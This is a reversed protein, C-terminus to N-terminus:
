AAEDANAHIPLQQASARQRKTVVLAHTHTRRFTRNGHLESQIESNVARQGSLAPATRRGWAQDYVCHRCLLFARWSSCHSGLSRDRSAAFVIWAIAHKAIPNTHLAAPWIGAAIPIAPIRVPGLGVDARRPWKSPKLGPSTRQNPSPEPGQGCQPHPRDRMAGLFLARIM